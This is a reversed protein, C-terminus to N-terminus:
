DHVIVEGTATDVAFRYERSRTRGRQELESDKVKVKLFLNTFERRARVRLADREDEPMMSLWTEFAHNGTWWDQKPMQDMAWEWQTRRVEEAEERQTRLEEARHQAEAAKRAAKDHAEQPSLDLGVDDPDPVDISWQCTGRVTSNLTLVAILGKDDTHERVAGPRDKHVILEVEGVGGPKPQVRPYVQIAAGQVMAIKHHAGIPSDGRRSGKGTHDIVCVTSRGNRTLRKLWGTIIDTSTADNTDLGHLGYLVTMGDAIILHPNAAELAAHFAERNRRGEDTENMSGFRNKQMDALPGEPHVYKFLQRIDDHGAGLQILRSLTFSPEDEFDIYMVREGLSMEQLCGVLAVWSKAAESQGYLMNVRGEYFLGRGDSRRLVTAEPMTVSGLLYPEVDVVDWTTVREALPDREEPPLDTYDLPPVSEPLVAIDPQYGAVSEIDRALRRAMEAHDDSQLVEALRPFGIAPQGDRIRQLTTRMVEGTRDEDDHTADALGNILIPLNKEWYPHVGDAQRLLGGALALYADHRGGQKPWKQLLVAALGVLAVQVQLVRGDWESPGIDGGWPEGEWVYREGDPHYSHPVVTQSGSSRMEVSVTGDPMKYRRTGPLADTAIYWYHSYPRSPRGSKMSTPPLFKPAVRVAEPTDLDVDVLNNSAEGLVIGINSAGEEAFKAFAEKLGKEDVGEWDTRTWQPLHPNKAGNRVPIPTFGREWAQIADTISNDNVQGTM